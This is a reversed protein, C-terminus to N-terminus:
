FKGAAIHASRKMITTHGPIFLRGRKELKVMEDPSLYAPSHAMGVGMHWNLGTNVERWDGITCSLGAQPHQALLSLSKELFGPLIEDDAAPFFAYEGRALDIGRNLTYSVGRNQENQYFKITPYQRVLNKILEVSDDTSGDDIILIELPKVPQRFIANLAVPLHKGHNYNPIIVSLSPLNM